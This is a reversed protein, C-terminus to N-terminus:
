PIAADRGPEAGLTSQWSGLVCGGPQVLYWYGTGAAPISSDSLVNGNGSSAADVAYVGISSSSVFSGRVARFAAPNPWTVNVKNASVRITQGFVVPPGPGLDPVADAADLDAPSWAAYRASGDYAMEWNGAFDFELLDEDEFAVGDIAGSGDFSVLLHGSCELYDVADLDLDAGIGDASGDLYLAFGAGDFRVLDEDDVRLGNLNVSTDFSLVLKGAVLTVADVDAGQPVGTAAANFEISYTAGDFRVVDAPRATLGGPLLVTTDFSLLQDGDPTQEYADLDTPSPISGIDLTAVTGALDDSAAAEDDLTAGALEVTVDASLRVRALSTAAVCPVRSTWFSAAISLLLAARLRGGCRENSQFRKRM